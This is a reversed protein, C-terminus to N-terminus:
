FRSAWFGVSLPPCVHPTVGKPHWCTLINRRQCNGIVGLVCFFHQPGM